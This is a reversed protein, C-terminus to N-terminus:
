NEMMNDENILKDIPVKDMISDPILKSLAAVVLVTSGMFICSGWENRDLEVTGFIVNLRQVMLYQVVVVGLLVALFQQNHFFRQFVKFDRPGVKRCNIQNFVQLFIFVNFIITFHKKKAQSESVPLYQDYELGIISQGFASLVLIVLSNYLSVVMIQKWVFKSLLKTNSNVPNEQLIKPFPPESSLSLAALTDMILNIWLLQVPTLPSEGFAILGILIAFLASLNVTTQFMIFKSINVYINRGWMTAKVIAELNDQTVIMDAADRVIPQGSGMAMGVKAAVLSEVDNIGDGTVAVSKGISKLGVVLLHKDYPTARGLM